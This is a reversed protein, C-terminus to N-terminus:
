PMLQLAVRGLEHEGQQQQQQTHTVPWQFPLRIVERGGVERAAEVVLHYAGEPLNALQPSDAAFFLEHTGVPRTAGSLGDVPFELQRGSRRWWLSLDKLWKTGENDKMELDYWVALDQQHRGKDTEIWLAVYPRHYEAVQLSPIEVQVSLAVALVPGTASSLLLAATLKKWQM